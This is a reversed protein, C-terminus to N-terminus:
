HRPNSGFLEDLQEAMYSIALESDPTAPYSLNWIHPVGEHVKM